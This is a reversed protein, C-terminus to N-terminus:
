SHHVVLAKEGDKTPCDIFTDVGLVNSLIIATEELKQIKEIDQTTLTACMKCYTKIM